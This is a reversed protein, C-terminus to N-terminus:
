KGGGPSAPRTARDARAIAELSTRCSSQARLALRIYDKAAGRSDKFVEVAHNTMDFFIGDLSVAHEMLERMLALPDDPEAGAAEGHSLQPTSSMENM